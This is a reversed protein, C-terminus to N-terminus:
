SPPEQLDKRPTSLVEKKSSVGMMKATKDWEFGFDLDGSVDDPNPKKGISGIVLYDNSDEDIGLIPLLVSKISDLTAPYEDERISRSSKIAAGGENISLFQSFTYVSGM